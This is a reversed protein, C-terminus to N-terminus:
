TAPKKGAPPRPRGGGPKRSPRKGGAKSPATGRERSKMGPKRPARGPAKGGAPGPPPAGNLEEEETKGKKDEDEDKSLDIKPAEVLIREGVALGSTVEVVKENSEGLVVERPEESGDALAIYVVSTGKRAGVAQVPVQIVGKLVKVDVEVEASMGPKLGTKDGELSVETDYQKLDPNLWSMASSALVAVKTVKGTFSRNAFADVTVRAPLGVEVMDVMSEHVRFKVALSSIDPLKILHQREYVTSGVEIPNGRHRWHQGTTGYVVLGPHTARMTCYDIQDRLKELQKKQLLYKAETSKMEVEAQSIASRARAIIRDLEKGREEYLSLYEEAQKPFEYRLFLERATLAQDLSIQHRMLALQEAELQQSSKIGMLKLGAYSAVKDSGRKFEEFALGIDAELKRKKQLALGGLRHTQTGPATVDVGAEPEKADQTEAADGSAPKPEDPELEEADPDAPPKPKERSKLAEEVAALAAVVEREIVKRHEGAEDYLQQALKLLDIKGTLADASLEEGVYEQLDMRSFKVNLEGQKVKSEGDSQEIAFAEKAQKFTAEANSYTIEHQTLKDRLEASDLEVLVKGKKIDEETVITGEDVLSIITVQGEVRSKIVESRLADLSGSETIVIPLDGRQVVFTARRIEQKTGRTRWWWFGAAGGAALLLLVIWPWVRRRPEEYSLDSLDVDALSGVTRPPSAAPEADPERRTKPRSTSM